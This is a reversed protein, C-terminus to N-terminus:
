KSNHIISQIGENILRLQEPTCECKAVIEVIIDNVSICMIEDIDKMSKYIDRLKLALEVKSEPELEKRAYDTFFDPLIVRVSEFTDVNRLMDNTEKKKSDDRDFIKVVDESPDIKDGAPIFEIEKIKAPEKEYYPNGHLDGVIRGNATKGSFYMALWDRKSVESYGSHALLFGRSIGKAEYLTLNVPDESTVFDKPIDDNKGDGEDDSAKRKASM